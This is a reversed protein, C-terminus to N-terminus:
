GAILRITKWKELHKILKDNIQELATSEQETCGDECAGADLAGDITNWLIKAQIPTLTITISM